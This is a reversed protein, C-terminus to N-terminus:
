LDSVKLAKIEDTPHGLPYGARSFIQEKHQCTTEHESIQPQVLENDNGLSYLHM